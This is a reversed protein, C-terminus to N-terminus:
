FLIKVALHNELESNKYKLQQNLSNKNKRMRRM